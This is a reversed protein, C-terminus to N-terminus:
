KNPYLNSPDPNEWGEIAKNANRETRVMVLNMWAPRGNTNFQRDVPFNSGEYRRTVSYNLRKIDFFTQGEGWLEVRKQFVIEEVVDDMSSVNTSYNADRYTKMFTELLQKGEAPNTHAAAEAEIFYMEEIRMVPFSVASGVKADKINASGPRFKLAVYEKFKAAPDIQETKGELAHGKPAIFSLKRFDTDSIRDYMAKSILSYAGAVAYGYEAEPSMWSTWNVIETKVAENEKAVSGCWMWSSVEPNNFGSAKDTWEKQTTPAGGAENIAKRAYEQAKPYDELWMYLRAKLGYAAALTPLQKTRYKFGKLYTEAKDLDSLIFAAMDKRLVRPNNAASDESTAETVIPVTYNTVDNGKDTKSSTKDNPLFEFMRAMDLYILARYAYAAGLMGVQETNAKAPDIAGITINTTLVMKTHYNWIFQGAAYSNGQYQNKAWSSYWDYGISPVTLDGTMVDRIHMISPYGYDYHYGTSVTGFNVMYAPMGLALAETAKSSQGLQQETAGSTPFTEEICSSMLMSSAAAAVWLIHKFTKM